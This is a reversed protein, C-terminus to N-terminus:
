RDDTNFNKPSSHIEQAQSRFHAGAGLNENGTKRLVVLTLDYRPGHQLSSPAHRITVQYAGLSIKDFRSIFVLMLTILFFYKRVTDLHVRLVTYGM